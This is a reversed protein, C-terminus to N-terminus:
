KNHNRLIQIEQNKSHEWSESTRFCRGKRQKDKSGYLKNKKPQMESNTRDIEEKEVNEAPRTKLLEKYYRAYM